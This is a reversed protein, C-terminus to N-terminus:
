CTPCVNRDRTYKYRQLAQDKNSVFIACISSRKGLFLFGGENGTEVENHYVCSISSISNLSSYSLIRKKKRRWLSPLNFNYSSVQTANWSLYSRIGSLVIPKMAPRRSYKHVSIEVDFCFFNGKTVNTSEGPKTSPSM